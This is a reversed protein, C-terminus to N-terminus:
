MNRVECIFKFMALLLDTHEIGNTNIRVISLCSGRIKHLFKRGKADTEIVIYAKISQYKNEVLHRFSSM